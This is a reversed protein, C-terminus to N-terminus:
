QQPTPQGKKFVGAKNLLSVLMDIAKQLWSQFKDAGIKSKMDPTLEDLAATTIGIVTGAKDVGSAGPVEVAQIAQLISPILGIVLQLIMLTSAM